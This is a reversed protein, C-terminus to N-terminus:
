NCLAGCSVLHTWDVEIKMEGRRRSTASPRATLGINGSSLLSGASWM